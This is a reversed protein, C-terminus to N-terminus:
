YKCFDCKYCQKIKAYIQLPSQLIEINLTQSKTILFPSQKQWLLIRIKKKM